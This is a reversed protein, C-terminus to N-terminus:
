GFKRSPSTRPRRIHGREMLSDVCSMTKGLIDYELGLKLALRRLVREHLKPRDARRPGESLLVRGVVREGSALANKVREERPRGKCDSIQTTYASTCPLQTCPPVVAIGPAKPQPFVTMECASDFNEFLSMM